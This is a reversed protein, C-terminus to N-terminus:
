MRMSDDDSWKQGEKKAAEEKSTDITAGTGGIEEMLKTIESEQKGLAAKDSETQSATALNEVYSGLGAGTTDTTKPPTALPTASNIDAFPLTTPVPTNTLSPDPVFPTYTGTKPKGAQTPLNPGFAAPNDYPNATQNQLTTAM